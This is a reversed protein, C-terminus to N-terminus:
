RAVYLKSVDQSVAAVIAPLDALVKSHAAVQEQLSSVEGELISVRTELDQIESNALEIFSDFTPFRLTDAGYVDDYGTALNITITSFSLKSNSGVEASIYGVSTTSQFKKIFCPIIPTFPHSSNFRKYSALNDVTVDSTMRYRIRMDNTYDPILLLESDKALYIDYYDGTGLRKIVFNYGSLSSISYGTKWTGTKNDYTKYTLTADLALSPVDTINNAANTTDSISM